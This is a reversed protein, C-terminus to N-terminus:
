CMLLWHRTPKGDCECQYGNKEGTYFDEDSIKWPSVGSPMRNNVANEVAEKSWDAPVCVSCHVIGVSYINLM